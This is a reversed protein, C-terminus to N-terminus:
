PLCSAERGEVFRELKGRYHAAATSCKSNRECANVMESWSAVQQQAEEGLSEAYRKAKAILAATTM